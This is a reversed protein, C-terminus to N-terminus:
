AQGRGDSEDDYLRDFEVSTLPEEGEDFVEEEEEDEEALGNEEVYRAMTKEVGSHIIDTYLGPLLLLAIPYYDALFAVLALLATMFVVRFLNRSAFYLALRVIVTTKADFRSLAPPIWLVMSIWIFAILFGIAYYFAWLFSKDWMQRGLDLATYLLLGSVVVIVSLLLGQKVSDRFSSFFDRAIGSGSGNVVRATTHFLATCSSIVTVVPLCCVLWFFSVIMLNAIRVLMNMFPNDFKFAGM